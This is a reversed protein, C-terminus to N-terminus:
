GSCVVCRPYGCSNPCVRGIYMCSYYHHHDTELICLMLLIYSHYSLTLTCREHTGWMPLASSTGCRPCVTLEFGYMLSQHIESLSVNNLDKFEQWSTMVIVEVGCLHPLESANLHGVKIYSYRPNSACDTLLSSNKLPHPCSVFNIPYPIVDYIYANGPIHYPLPHPNYSLFNYDYAYTFNYHYASYTPFSCIDDNNLSADVLRITSNHYNIAKVYYKHSNLSISTVNNECRLEFRSDGCNKSDGKLRFPSSINPIIGCASPSCKANCSGFSYLLLLIFLSSCKMMTSENITFLVVSNM